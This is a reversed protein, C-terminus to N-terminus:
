GLKPADWLRDWGGGGGADEKKDKDDKKDDGENEKDEGDDDNKVSEDNGKEGVKLIQQGVNGLDIEKESADFTQEVVIDPVSSRAPALLFKERGKDMYATTIQQPAKAGQLIFSRTKHVTSDDWSFSDSGAEAAVVALPFLIASIAWFRRM